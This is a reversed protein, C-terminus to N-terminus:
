GSGSGLGLESGERLWSFCLCSEGLSLGTGLPQRLLLRLDLGPTSTLGPRWRRGETGCLCDEVLSLLCAPFLLQGLYPRAWGGRGGAPIIPAVPSGPVQEGQSTPTPSPFSLSAGRTCILLCAQLPFSEHPQDGPSNPTSDQDRSAQHLTPTWGSLARGEWAPHQPGSLMCLGCRLGPLSSAPRLPCHQWLWPTPDHLGGESWVGM